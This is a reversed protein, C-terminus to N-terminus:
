RTFGGLVLKKKVSRPLTWFFFGSAMSAVLCFHCGEANGVDAGGEGRAPDIDSRLGDQEILQIL